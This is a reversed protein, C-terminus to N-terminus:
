EEIGHVVQQHQHLSFENTAPEHCIPCSLTGPTASAGAGATAAAGAGAATGGEDWPKPGTGASRGGTSPRLAPAAILGVFLGIIVAILALVTGLQAPTLSILPANGLSRNEFVPPNLNSVNIWDHATYNGAYPTGLTLVVDYAGPQVAIWTTTGSRVEEGVGPANAGQLFVPTTLAGAAYVAISANQVYGGQYSYALTVNGLPVTANPGPGTISGHVPSFILFTNVQAAISNGDTRNENLWVIIQYQGSPYHGGNGSYFQDLGMLTLNLSQNYNIVGNHVRESLNVVTPCPSRLGGCGGTVYRLDFSQNYTYNFVQDPPLNLTWNVVYPVVTYTNSIGLNTISVGGVVFKKTQTFVHGASDTIVVTLNHAGPSYNNSLNGFKQYSQWYPPST